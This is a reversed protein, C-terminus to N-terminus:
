VVETQKWEDFLEPDAQVITVESWFHKACGSQTVKGCKRVELLKSYVLELYGAEDWVNLPIKSLKRRGKSEESELFGHARRPLDQIEDPEKWVELIEPDAITEWPLFLLIRSTCVESGEEYGRQRPLQRENTECLLFKQPVHHCIKPSEM